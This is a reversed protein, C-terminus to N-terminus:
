KIAYLSLADGNDPEIHLVLPTGASRCTASRRAMSVGMLSEHLDKTRLGGFRIADWKADIGNLCARIVNPAYM